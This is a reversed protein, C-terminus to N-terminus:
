SMLKKHRKAMSIAIAAAQKQSVPRRPNKSSVPAHTNRRVGEAMIKKIKEGVRAKKSNKLRYYGS